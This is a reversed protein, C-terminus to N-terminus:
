DRGERKGRECEIIRMVEAVADDLDANEVRYDYEPAWKLEEASNRLRLEIASEEDTGRGRLREELVDPSPPLIFILVSEPFSRKISMGGQIDVDMIVNRGSATIKRIAAKRTGYRHGHVVAWEALEGREVLEDFEADTVFEYDAKNEEGPRPPRTTVSVSYAIRPDEALVRRTITTKGM